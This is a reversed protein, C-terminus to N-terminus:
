RISPFRRCSLACLRCFQRRRGVMLASGSAGSKDQWGVIPEGGGGRRGALDVGDRSFTRVVRLGTM